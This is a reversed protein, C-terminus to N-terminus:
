ESPKTEAGGRTVLGRARTTAAVTPDAGHDIDARVNRQYLAFENDKLGSKALQVVLNTATAVPVKRVILDSLVALPMTVSRKGSAARIRALDQASVGADLADSASKIEDATVNPGLAHKAAGMRVYLQHVAATVTPGDSGKASGELAKNVLPSTPLKAVRASDVIASVAVQTPKDLRESLRPDQAIAASSALMLALLSRGVISM